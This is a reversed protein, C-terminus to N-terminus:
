RLKLPPGTLNIYLTIRGSSGSEPTPHLCTPHLPLEPLTPQQEQFCGLFAWSLSAKFLFAQTAKPALMSLDSPCAGNKLVRLLCMVTPSSCLKQCAGVSLRSYLILFCASDHYDLPHLWSQHFSWDWFLAFGPNTSNERSRSPSGLARNRLENLNLLRLHHYWM